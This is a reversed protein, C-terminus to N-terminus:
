GTDRGRQRRAERIDAVVSGPGVEISGRRRLFTRDAVTVRVSNGVTEWQLVDGPGLGLQNRVQRPVTTQGKSTITSKAM